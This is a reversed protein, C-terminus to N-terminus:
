PIPFLPHSLKSIFIAHEKAASINANVIKEEQILIEYGLMKHNGLYSITGQRNMIEAGIQFLPHDKGQGNNQMLDLSSDNYLGPPLAQLLKREYGKKKIVMHIRGIMIEIDIPLTFEELLLTHIPIRHNNSFNLENKVYQSEASNRSLLLLCVSANELHKAIVLNWDDGLHLGDDYWFRINHKDFISKIETMCAKDRHSYSIFIYPKKGEYMYLGEDNETNIPHVSMDIM